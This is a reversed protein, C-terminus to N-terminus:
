SFARITTDIRPAYRGLLRTLAKNVYVSRKDRLPVAAGALPRIECDTLRALDSVIKAAAIEDFLQKFEIRYPTFESWFATFEHIEQELGDLHRKIEGLNPEAAIWRELSKRIQEIPRHVTVLVSEEALNRIWHERVYSRSSPYHTKIIYGAGALDLPQGRGYLGWSDLDVYLPSRRYEPLNNLLLDILLHTGSRTGTAVLINKRGNKIPVGPPVCTRRNNQRLVRSGLFNAFSM